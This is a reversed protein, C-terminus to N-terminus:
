QIDEDRKNFYKAKTRPTIQCLQYLDVVSLNLDPEQELTKNLYPNNLTKEVSPMTLNATISEAKESDPDHAANKMSYM